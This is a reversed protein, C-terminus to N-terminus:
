AADAGTQDMAGMFHRPVARNGRTHTEATVTEATPRAPRVIHMVACVYVSM